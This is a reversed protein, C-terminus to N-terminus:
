KINFEVDLIKSCNPCTVIINKATFPQECFPCTVIIGESNLIDLAKQLADIDSNADIEVRGNM